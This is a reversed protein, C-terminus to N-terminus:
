LRQKKSFHTNFFNKIKKWFMRITFLGGIIAAILVQFIYSGTGPDLYASANQSIAFQIVVMSILVRFLKHRLL